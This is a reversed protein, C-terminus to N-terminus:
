NVTQESKRMEILAWKNEEFTMRSTMKVIAITTCNKRKRIRFKRKLIAIPIHGLAGKQHV